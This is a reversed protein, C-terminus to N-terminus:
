TKGDEGWEIRIYLTWAKCLIILPVTFVSLLTMLIINKVM